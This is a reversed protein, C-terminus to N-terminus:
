CKGPTTSDIMKRLFEFQERADEAKFCHEEFPNTELIQRSTNSLAECGRFIHTTTKEALRSFRGEPNAVRQTKRPRPSFIGGSCEQSYVVTSVISQVLHGLVISLM